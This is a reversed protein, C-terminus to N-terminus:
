APPKPDAKKVRRYRIAYDARLGARDTPSVANAADSRHAM